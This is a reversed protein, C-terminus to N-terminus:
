EIVTQKEGAANNFTKRRGTINRPDFDIMCRCHEHQKFFDAPQLGYEFEGELGACYKCAGREASRIVSVRMGLDRLMDANVKITDVVVSRTLNIVPEGLLWAADDFNDYEAIKSALNVVRDRNYDPKKGGFGYGAVANLRDQAAVAVASALEYNAGVFEDLLKVGINYFMRGEPLRDSGVKLNFAKALLNGLELAFRTAHKYNITGDRIRNSTSKVTRSEGYLRDFEKRVDNILEPTIDTM